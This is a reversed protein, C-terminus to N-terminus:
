RGGGTAVLGISVDDYEEELAEKTLTLKELASIARMVGEMDLVTQLLCFPFLKYSILLYLFRYEGHLSTQVM